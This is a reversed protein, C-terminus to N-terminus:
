EVLDSTWNAAQLATELERRQEALRDLQRRLAAVDVTPVTRIETRSYRSVRDGARNAVADLVSYQLALTDRRALAATISVGSATEASVNTRNIRTILSTLENILRELEALLEQPNEPPQEGEQVLASQQLRDRLQEIRKQLDARLVLAEALKM